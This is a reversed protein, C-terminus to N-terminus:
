STVSKIVTFGIVPQETTTGGTTAYTIRFSGSGVATVHLLYLDTGSKQNLIIRDTAAVTSNTVTFSQWSASGAASVLTIEGSVKDLTVGTTRNTGQTVTGGAGTSYGLGGTPSSSTLSNAVRTAGALYNQATGDLYLNYCGSQEDIRGRFGYNLVAGTLSSTAEFGTQVSVTAGAGFSSPFASFHVLSPLTFAADVVSPYSLFSYYYSTASSQLASQIWVGTPTASSTNSTINIKSDTSPATGIGIATAAVTSPTTGGIAGPSPFSTVDQSGNFNSGGITHTTQLITATGSNGTITTQDGTNTGSSTGSFTGSQTALTGLGFLTRGAAADALALVSRGYSTTSLAAIATLDSDLPQYVSSLGSIASTVESDRAISSAIALTVAASETGSNAVTIETAGSDAITAVYNGTTDTGLAVSNAQITAAFSGTGSGTVDGTLTITQDGSNTGSSTGSYTGSQTALTGLGFLTRGAAADALALVSRGYSTTSLAAIATLDSDLPQYAAAVASTTLLSNGSVFLAATPSVLAGTNRNATVNGTTPTQARVFPLLALCLFTLLLRM